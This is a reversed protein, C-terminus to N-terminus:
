RLKHGLATEFTAVINDIPMNAVINHCTCFIFGGDKNFIDINEKVENVCDEPTGNNLTTQTQIGGGWFVLKDGYKEKLVRPDMGAASTQIPNLCDVGMDIFDDMFSVVSGCTHYWTKWNTNQHVWDNVRKWRPKYLERFTSLSMFPGNQTGLDTGSIYVACIKDGVAQKYIELNKIMVDAQMDFVEELYEPYMLQAELYETSNRIGKPHAIHPAAVWSMDGMGMGILNGFIAYDTETWLRNAEKEIYRAEEDTMVKFDDKYDERPHMDDEDFEEETRFINDFFYGGNPMMCSPNVTRDGGPYSLIDGKQNTTYEFDGPMMVPTGDFMKWPKFNKYTGGLQNSLRQLCVVDTELLKCLDDDMKGLMQYIEQIEIPHEPLGLAKRLKYMTSAHIGTQTTAGVDIPLRDPTQHNLAANVRERKTMPKM